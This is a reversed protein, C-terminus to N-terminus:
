LDWDEKVVTSGNQEGNVVTRESEVRDDEVVTNKRFSIRSSGESILVQQDEEAFSLMPKAGGGLEDEEEEFGLTPGYQDLVVVSLRDKIISM